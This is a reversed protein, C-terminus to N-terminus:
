AARFVRHRPVQKAPFLLRGGARLAGRVAASRHRLAIWLPVSEAGFRGKAIETSQGLSLSRAGQEIAFRIVAALQNFYLACAANRQYDIGHFLDYAATGDLVLAVWGIVRGRAHFRILWARPGLARGVELFFRATLRELQIPARALVAEYLRHLEDDYGEALPVVDVEGGAGAFQRLAKRIKYRYDSRLSALYAEWDDWGISLRSNPESPAFLWGKAGGIATQAAPLDRGNLEKFVCWAAGQEVAHRELSGALARFVAPADAGEALRVASNAVSLPTGCVMLRTQLFQPMVTRVAGILRHFLGHTLRAGDIAIRSVPAAAVLRGQENVVTAYWLDVDPLGANEVARLVAHESFPDHGLADWAQPDLEAATAYLRVTLM